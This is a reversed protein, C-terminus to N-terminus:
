WLSSLVSFPFSPYCVYAYISGTLVPHVYTDGRIGKYYSSTPIWDGLLKPYKTIKETWTSRGLSSPYYIRVQISSTLDDPSDPNILAEHDLHSVGYPGTGTPLM